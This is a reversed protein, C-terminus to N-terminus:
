QSSISSAYVDLPTPTEPLTVAVTSQAATLMTTFYGVVLMLILGTGLVFLKRM